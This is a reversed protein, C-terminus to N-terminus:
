RDWGLTHMVRSHKICGPCQGCALNSVHCSHAWALVTPAVGSRRVLEESSISVAPAHATIGGAQMALLESMRAVFDPSGDAHRSDTIVTGIVIRGCGERLAQMAGLTLLFQNRYPWFEPHTSYASPQGNAMLGTAAFSVPVSITIQRLGLARAAEQASTTEAEAALQGYNVTLCTAPRLMAALAISDIGGSLLLLDSM